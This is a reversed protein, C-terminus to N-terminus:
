KPYSNWTLQFHPGDLFPKKKKEKCDKLYEKFAEEASDYHNLALQWARGWLLEVNLEVAAERMAEAIVHFAAEDQWDIRGNVWPALDVAHGTLHRSNMTKSKGENVYRRQTELSRLGEVVTFDQDTIEIALKVVSVLDPHVGRLRVLSTKGLQYTM